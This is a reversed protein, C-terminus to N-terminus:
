LIWPGFDNGLIYLSLFPFVLTFVSPSFRHTSSVTIDQTINSFEEKAKSSIWFSGAKLSSVKM